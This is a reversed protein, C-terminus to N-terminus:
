NDWMKVMMGLERATLDDLLGIRDDDNCTKLIRDTQKLYKHGQVNDGLKFYNVALDYYGIAFNPDIYITKKLLRISQDFANEEKYILGLLYYAEILLSDNEIAKQCFLKADEVLDKNAKIHAVMYLARANKPYREVLEIFSKEAANFDNQQFLEVGKSFLDSENLQARREVESQAATKEPTSQVRNTEIQESRQTLKERVESRQSVPQEKKPSSRHIELKEIQKQLGSLDPVATKASSAITQQDSYDKFIDRRIRIGTKYQQEKKLATDRRYIVADPYIESVYNDYILSSPEAHGVALYGKEKLCEYFKHVAKITTEMEFYITVNRCFILDLDKTFNESLPYADDVLNLYDFNVLSRVRDDLYYLGDKKTFFNNKYFDSISRLSWPRYVADKAYQLSNINIDTGIISINWERIDPLLHNLVMAATFPEEGTSCGASWIRLTKDHQHSKILNPLVEREIVDFHRFFYTEGITLFSVLMKFAPSNSKEVSLLDFYESLNKMGSYHFAKLVGAKLDSRKRDAFFIGSKTRILDRFKIFYEESFETERASYRTPSRKAATTEADARHM